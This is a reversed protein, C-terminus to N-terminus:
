DMHSALCPGGWQVIISDQIPALREFWYWCNRSRDTEPLVHICHAAATWGACGLGHDSCLEM